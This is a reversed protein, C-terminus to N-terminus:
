HILAQSLLLRQVRKPPRHQTLFAKPQPGKPLKPKQDPHEVVFRPFHPTLPHRKLNAGYEGMRPISDIPDSPIM